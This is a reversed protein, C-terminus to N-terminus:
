TCNVPLLGRDLWHAWLAQWPPWGHGGAATDVHDAPLTAAM